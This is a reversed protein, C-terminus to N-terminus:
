DSHDVLSTLRVKLWLKTWRQDQQVAAVECLVVDIRKCGGHSRDLEERGLKRALCLLLVPRM